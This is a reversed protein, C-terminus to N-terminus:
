PLESTDIQMAARVRQMTRQAEGRAKRAGAALIERIRSRDRALERRREQFPALTPQMHDLLMGKCDVCGIGARRCEEEVISLTEASSFAKHLDHAPCIDPNGPDHRRKRAPDTVMTLIKKRILPPEDALNIANGYSKSMKRGDTGPLRPTRTTMAQPEPFVQGYLGNFRRAIERSLELHALQDEGVPVVEARYILIDAAQLVPYGLFGFNTLDRNSLQEQQEKYTPVRELWPVPVIMSLLLYLEAHAPVHSQVFLTCREQDLGAALWDIALEVIYDKIGSTDQYDSTLAHWDVIVFYCDHTDQLKVWNELAGVLHGIHM